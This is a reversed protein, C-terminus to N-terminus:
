LNLGVTMVLWIKSNVSQEASYYRDQRPNVALVSMETIIAPCLSPNVTNFNVSKCRKELNTSPKSACIQHPSPWGRSLFHLM